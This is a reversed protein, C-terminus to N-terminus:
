DLALHIKLREDIQRMLSNPLTALVKQIRNRDISRVQDVLAKSDRELGAVSEILVEIRSIKNLRQSTLPVITILSSKENAVDNSVVTAPRTKKIEVGRTPDLNVLVINGRRIKMRWGMRYPSMGNM